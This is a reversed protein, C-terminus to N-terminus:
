EFCQSSIVDVIVLEPPNCIRPIGATNALGRSIVLRDDHVGSTLKPFWGQGPAFMGRGFFRWQGGHAHGSLIIDTGTEQIYKPYYEPHHCLLIKFGQLHSFKDLWRLNPENGNDMDRSLSWASANCAASSLGGIILGNWYCFGNHLLVTGTQEIANLDIPGSVLAEHNGLSYFTPAIATAEKLFELANGQCSLQTAHHYNGSM